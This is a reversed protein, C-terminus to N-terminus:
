YEINNDVIVTASPTFTANFADKLINSTIIINTLSGSDVRYDIAYDQTTIGQDDYINNNTIQINSIAVNDTRLQLGSGGINSANNNYIQNNNMNVYSGGLIRVGHRNNERVASNAITINNTGDFEAGSVDNTNHIETGNVIKYTTDNTSFIGYDCDTIECNDVIVNTCSSTEIGDQPSGSIKTKRITLNTTNSADISNGGADLLISSDVLVDECSVAVFLRSTYNSVNCNFMSVKHSNQIQFCDGATSTTPNLDVNKINLGDVYNFLMEANGGDWDDNFYVKDITLDKIDLSATGDVDFIAGNTYDKVLLNKIVIKSAAGQIRIKTGTSKVSCNEFILGKTVQNVDILFSSGEFDVNNFHINENAETTSDSKVDVCGINSSVFGNSFYINKNTENERDHTILRVPREGFSGSFNFNDIYINECGDNIEIASERGGTVNIYKFYNNKASNAVNSGDGVSICHRATDYIKINEYIGNTGLVCLGQRPCNYATLNKVVTKDATPSVYIGANRLAGGGSAITYNGDINANYIKVNDATVTIVGQDLGLENEATFVKLLANEDFLLTLSKDLLLPSDTAYTGNPFYLTKGEELSTIVTSIETTQDTGDNLVGQRTIDVVSADGGLQEKLNTKEIRRRKEKTPVDPDVVYFSARDSITEVATLETLKDSM